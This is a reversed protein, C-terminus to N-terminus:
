LFGALDIYSTHVTLFLILAISYTLISLYDDYNQNAWIVNLSQHTCTTGQGVHLQMITWIQM